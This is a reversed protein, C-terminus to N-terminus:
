RSYEREALFRRNNALITELAKPCRLRAFSSVESYIQKTVYDWLARGSLHEYGNLHFNLSSGARNVQGIRKKLKTDSTHGPPFLRLAVEVLAIYKSDENTQTRPQFDAQNFSVSSPLIRASGSEYLESDEPKVGLYDCYFAYHVADSRSLADVRKVNLANFENQRMFFTFCHGKLGENKDFQTAFSNLLSISLLLMLLLPM